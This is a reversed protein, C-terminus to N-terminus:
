HVTAEYGANSTAIMLDRTSIKDPDYRVIVTKTDFSANAAIVGDVHELSKRITVPCSACSMGPVDLVVERVEANATVPHRNDALVPTLYPVSLLGLVLLTVTWLTIKNIRDSNTHTCHSGSPCEVPKPKRYIQYFAYGLLILTLIILYPRFPEFSSLTGIWAGSVGLGLLVLPGVCCVSAAAAALVAGILGKNSLNKLTQNQTM